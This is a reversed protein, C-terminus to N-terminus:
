VKKWLVGMKEKIKQSIMLYFVSEANRKIERLMPNKLEEIIEDEIKLQQEQPLSKFFEIAEDNRQYEKREENKIKEQKAERMEIEKTNVETTGKFLHNSFVAAVNKVDSKNKLINLQDQFTKLIFGLSNNKLLELVKTEHKKSFDIGNDVFWQKIKKLDDNAFEHEYSKHEKHNLEKNLNNIIYEKNNDNESLRTQSNEDSLNTEKKCDLKDIESLSTQPSLFVLNEIMSYNIKFYRKCPVGKNKQELIKLEILDKIIKDQKHRGIGTLEGIKEITQYFWGEDDSLGDSAEILITLLFASEIGLSKVIQKNLTYYNSSMLLQKFTKDQM